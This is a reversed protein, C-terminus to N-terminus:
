LDMGKGLDSPLRCISLHTGRYEEPSTVIFFHIETVMGKVEKDERELLNPYPSLTM